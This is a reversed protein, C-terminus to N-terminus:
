ALHGAGLRNPFTKKSYDHSAFGDYDFDARGFTPGVGLRQHLILGRQVHIATTSVTKSRATMSWAAPRRVASIEPGRADAM